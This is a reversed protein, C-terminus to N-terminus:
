FITKSFGQLNAQDRAEWKAVNSVFFLLIICMILWTSVQSTKATVPLTESKDEMILVQGKADLYASLPFEM